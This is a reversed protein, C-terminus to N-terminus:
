RAAPLVSAAPEGDAPDPLVDAAAPLAHGPDGADLGLLHGAGIRTAFAVVDALGVVAKGELEIPGGDPGSIEVKTKDGYNPNNARAWATLITPQPDGNLALEDMREDVLAARIEEGMAILDAYRQRDGGPAKLQTLTTGAKRSAVYPSAGARLHREFDQFQQESAAVSVGQFPFHACNARHCMRSPM